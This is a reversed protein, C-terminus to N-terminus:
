EMNCVVGYQMSSWIVYREMYTQTSRIVYRKTNMSSWVIM